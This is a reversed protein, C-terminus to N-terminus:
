KYIKRTSVRGVKWSMDFIEGTRIKYHKKYRKMLNWNERSTGDKLDQWSVLTGLIQWYYIEYQWRSWAIGEKGAVAIRVPTVTDIKRKWWQRLRDYTLYRYSGSLSKHKYKQKLMELSSCWVKITWLNELKLSSCNELSTITM